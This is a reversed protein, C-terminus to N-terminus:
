VSTGYERVVRHERERGGGRERREARKREKDAWWAFPHSRFSKKLPAHFSFPECPAWTNTVYKNEETSNAFSTKLWHTMLHILQKVRVISAKVFDVQYPLLALACLEAEKNDNCLYLKHYLDLKLDTSM